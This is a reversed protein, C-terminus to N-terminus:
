GEEAREARHLQWRALGVMVPFPLVGLMLWSVPVGLLRLEDLAPLLAFLLPLGFLLAFLGLLPAVARRRQEEYLIRAREAEAPELRPARWRRRLKRRSHALRTQPSTVAVRKPPKGVHGFSKLVPSWRHSDAGAGPQDNSRGSKGSDSM